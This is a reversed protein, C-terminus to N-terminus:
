SSERRKTTPSCKEIVLLGKSTERKKPFDSIEKKEIKEIGAEERFHDGWEKLIEEMEEGQYFLNIREELSLGEKKRMDQIVRTIERVEGERKLQPTIKTDLYIEEGKEFLIEKVNVEDKLIDILDKEMKLSPTKLTSLPQRVKIGEKARISLAQSAIERVKEMDRLLKKDIKEEKFDPYSSLHVSKDGDKFNNGTVEQWIQETLFPMLPAAARSFTELIEGATELADEEGKKFRERSRRIYWTSLDDIFSTIAKCAPPTNYSELSEKIEKITQNLRAIIWRDLINKSNIEKKFSVDEEKFLNYFRLVNSLLLVNKRLSDKIDEELISTDGGVMIPSSMFYMRLADGGYEEIVRAPDPYNGFSKSMKRGDDGALVGTVIVNKFAISDFLSNSLLHLYYFWGRLQGTYEIIFDAPFRNKLEEEKKFPYHFQAFPMSGSEFWCDLVDPVREMKGKCVDCSFTVKDIEPRHLDEVKKGSLEEMEKISGLVKIHEENEKCKWVPLPSGWYRSRSLCWDPANELNYLFRGEKFYDPVWNIKKNSEIMKKRVKDVDLYWDKQTKHILETECRYCFPYSHLYKDKLFIQSSIKELVKKGAEKFYLGKFEKANENYVGNEDMLEILPLGEKKALNFDDEGFNPAIHVIGTGEELTVFDGLRVKFLSEEKEIVDFLPKYKLGEIEKGKIEKKIKFDKEKFFEELREKAILYDKGESEVVLYKINKGVALAMNGPLTWPTTTWALLYLGNEGEFEVVLSQDEVERYCGADMTIEFKSLPTACRPCHLSTRYGEYLLGKEYLEKFAWIVSEMFELDMTKYARKMDVWRGIKEIYWEWKKSGTDVYERCAQVFKEVGLNEIDNKNKLGLEEEVKNEAPLGHCDWGWIREVRYGKMTFYRPIVDKAISPLLTAYHPTGTIFPPGDYFVYDGKPAEKEVSKEFIKNEKWFQNVKEEKEFPM